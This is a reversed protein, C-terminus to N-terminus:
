ARSRWDGREEGRLAQSVKAMVALMFLAELRVTEILDALDEAAAVQDAVVDRGVSDALVLYMM